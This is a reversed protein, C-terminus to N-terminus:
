FNDNKCNKFIASYQVSMDAYHDHMKEIKQNQTASEGGNLIPHM